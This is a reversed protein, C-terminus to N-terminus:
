GFLDGVLCSCGPCPDCVCLCCPCFFTIVFEFYLFPSFSPWFLTPLSDLQIHTLVSFFYFFFNIMQASAAPFMTEFKSFVGKPFWMCYNLAGVDVRCCGPLGASLRWIMMNWQLAPLTHQWAKLNSPSKTRNWDETCRPPRIPSYSLLNTSCTM